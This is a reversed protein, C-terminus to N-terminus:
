RVSSSERKTAQQRASAETSPQVNSCKDKGMCTVEFGITTSLTKLCARLHDDDVVMLIEGLFFFAQFFITFPLLVPLLPTAISSLSLPSRNSFVVRMVSIGPAVEGMILSSRSSESPTLIANSSDAIGVAVLMNGESKPVLLISEQFLPQETQAIGLPIMTFTEFLSMEMDVISRSM